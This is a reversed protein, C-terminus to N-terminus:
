AMFNGACCPRGFMAYSLRWNVLYWEEIEKIVFPTSVLESREALAEVDMGDECFAGYMCTEHLSEKFSNAVM